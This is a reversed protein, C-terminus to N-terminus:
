LAKIQDYLEKKIKDRLDKMPKFETIRYQFGKNASGEAVAIYELRQLEEFYRFCQSKSQNLAQRIERQFFLHGTGKTQKKVYEMLREFFQRTSSDLEDVKLWIADFFLDTAMKVDETTAVIRGLEDIERQYQHLFAIQIVFMQFQENLRRLMKAEIPLQIKDAFRNIVKYPKLVRVCNQLLEKAQQEKDLDILGAIKQNQYQIIRRTQEESEDVGIIISRSMNDFYVEAKTTAVMSSFHANVHKVQSQLNGFKDKFVTSSSLFKASQAERFALEAEPDLSDIDQIVIVKNMLDNGQYHYFSKSTVRTLNLVDEGPLCDKIANILHSKGSGSSGQVLVHLPHSKFTTASVFLLIRNSKEGIVGGQAVLDDLKKMLSKSSLLQVADGEKEPSLVQKVRSSILMSNSKEIQKDRYASLLDSLQMLDVQLMNANFGEKESLDICYNQVQDYEFLDLKRVHKRSTVFEELQLTVKLTSMDSSISGLVFYNGVQGIFGMKQDNYVVLKSEPESVMEQTRMEVRPKFDSKLAIINNPEILVGGSAIREDILSLISESGYNVLMDNLSNGEPLNMSSLEIDPFKNQIQEIAQQM